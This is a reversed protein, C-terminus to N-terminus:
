VLAFERINKATNHDQQENVATKKGSFQRPVKPTKALGMAKAASYTGAM